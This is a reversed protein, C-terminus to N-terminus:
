YQLASLYKFETLCNIDGYGEVPMLNFALSYRSKDTNNKPVFHPLYSPFMILRGKSAPVTFHYSSFENQIDHNKKPIMQFMASAGANKEFILASSEDYENDFYLVGSIFSNPHIHTKHEQNPGKNNVWSIIDIVDKIEFGMIETALKKAYILIKERIEKLSELRLVQKNESLEGWVECIKENSLLKTEEKKMPLSYLDKQIEEPIHLDMVIVPTPFISLLNM